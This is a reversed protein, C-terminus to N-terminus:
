CERGVLSCHHHPDFCPHGCSVILVLVLDHKQLLDVHPAGGIPAILQTGSHLLPQVPGKDLPLHLQVVGFQRVYDLPPSLKLMVDGFALGLVLLQQQGGLLCLRRRLAVCMGLLDIPLPDLSGNSRRLGWVCVCVRVCVCVGVCGSVWVCLSDYLCVCVGVCVCFFVCVFFIVSLCVLVFVCVRACACVFM